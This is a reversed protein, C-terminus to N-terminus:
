FYIIVMNIALEDTVAQKLLTEKLESVNESIKEEEKEYKKQKKKLEKLQNKEKKQEKKLEKAEKKNHDSELKNELNLNKDELGIDSIGFIELNLTGSVSPHKTVKNAGKEIHVAEQYLFILKLM